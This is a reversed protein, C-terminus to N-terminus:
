LHFYYGLYFSLHIHIGGDEEEFTTGDGWLEDDETKEKYVPIMIGIQWSRKKQTGIWRRLGLDLEVGKFRSSGSTSTWEGKESNYTSVQVGNEQYERYSLGMVKQWQSQEHGFFWNVGLSYNLPTIPKLNSIGLGMSVNWAEGFSKSVSVGGHGYPQGLGVGVSYDSSFASFPVGLFLLSLLLTRAFVM